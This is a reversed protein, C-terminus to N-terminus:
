PTKRRQVEACPIWHRIRDYGPDNPDPKVWYSPNPGTGRALGCKACVYPHISYPNGKVWKHRTRALQVSRPESRDRNRAILRDIHEPTHNM